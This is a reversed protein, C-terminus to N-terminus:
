NETRVRQCRGEEVPKNEKSLTEMKNTSAGLKLRLQSPVVLMM